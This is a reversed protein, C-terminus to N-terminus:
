QNVKNRFANAEYFNLFLFSIFGRLHELIRNYKQLQIFCLIGSVRQHSHLIFPLILMIMKIKEGLFLMVRVTGLDCIREEKLRM